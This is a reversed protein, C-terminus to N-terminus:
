CYYKPVSAKAERLRRADEKAKLERAKASGKKAFVYKKQEVEENRFAEIGLQEALALLLEYCHKTERVVPEISVYEGDNSVYNIIGADVLAQRLHKDKSSFMTKTKFYQQWDLFPRPVAHGALIGM